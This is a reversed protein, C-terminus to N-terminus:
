QEAGGQHDLVWKKTMTMFADLYSFYPLETGNLQMRSFPYDTMNAVSRIQLWCQCSRLYGSTM